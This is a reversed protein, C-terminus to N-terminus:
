STTAPCTLHRDNEFDVPENTIVARVKSAVTQWQDLTDPTWVFVPYPMADLWASTVARYAMLVSDYPAVQAPTLLVRSIL